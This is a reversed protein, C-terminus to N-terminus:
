SGPGHGLHKLHVGFINKKKSRFEKVEVEEGLGDTGAYRL